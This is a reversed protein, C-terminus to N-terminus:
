RALGRGELCWSQCFLTRHVLAHEELRLMELLLIPGGQSLQV